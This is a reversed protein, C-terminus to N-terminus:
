ALIFDTCLACVCEVNRGVLNSLRHVHGEMLALRQKHSKLQNSLEQNKTKLEINELILAQNTTSPSSRGKVVEVDNMIVEVTVDEEEEVTKKSSPTEIPKSTLDDDEMWRPFGSVTQNVSKQNALPQKPTKPTETKKASSRPLFPVASRILNKRDNANM